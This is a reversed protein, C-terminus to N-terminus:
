SHTRVAEPSSKRPAGEVSLEFVKQKLGAAGGGTVVQSVDVFSLACDCALEPFLFPLM